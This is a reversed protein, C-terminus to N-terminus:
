NRSSCGSSAIRIETYQFVSDEADIFFVWSNGLFLITVGAFVVLLVILALVPLISAFRSSYVVIAAIGLITLVIIDIYRDIFVSVTGKHIGIREQM